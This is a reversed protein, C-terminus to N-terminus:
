IPPPNLLDRCWKRKLRRPPNGHITPVALDCIPPNSNSSLRNYHAKAEEQVTKMKLDSHITSNSVYPPTNLLKRLALNQFTQIKYLNAPHWIDM